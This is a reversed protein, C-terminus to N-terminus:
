HCKSAATGDEKQKDTRTVQGTMEIFIYSERNDRTSRPNSMTGMALGGLQFEFTTQLALIKEMQDGKETHKRQKKNCCETGDFRVAVLKVLITLDVFCIQQLNHIISPHPQTLRYVLTFILDFLRNLFLYAPELVLTGLHTTLDLAM